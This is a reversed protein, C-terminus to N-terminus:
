SVRGVYDSSAQAIDQNYYHGNHFGDNAYIWTVYEGNQTKALVVRHDEDYNTAKHELLTVGQLKAKYNLAFTYDTM